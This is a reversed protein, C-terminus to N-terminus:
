IGLDIQLTMGYTGFLGEAWARASDRTRDGSVNSHRLEYLEADYSEFLNPYRAKLRTGVMFYTPLMVFLQLLMLIDFTALHGRKSIKHLRYM